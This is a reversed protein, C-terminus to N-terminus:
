HLVSARDNPNIDPGSTPKTRIRRLGVYTIPIYWGAGGLQGPVTGGNELAEYVLDFLSPDCLIFANITIVRDVPDVASQLMLPRFATM